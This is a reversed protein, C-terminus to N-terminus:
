NNNKNYIQMSLIFSALLGFIVYLIEDVYQPETMLGISFTIVFLLILVIIIYVSNNRLWNM